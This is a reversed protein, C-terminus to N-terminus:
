WQIKELLFYYLKGLGLAASTVASASMIVNSDQTLQQHKQQQGLQVAVLAAALNRDEETLDHGLLDETTYTVNQLYESNSMDVVLSGHAPLLESALLQSEVRQIMFPVGETMAVNELLERNDTAEM